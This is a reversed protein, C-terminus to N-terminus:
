FPNPQRPLPTCPRFAFLAQGSYSVLAGCAAGAIVALQPLANLATVVLAAFVAYSV